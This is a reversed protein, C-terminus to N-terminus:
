RTQLKEHSPWRFGGTGNMKGAAGREKEDDRSNRLHQHVIRHANLHPPNCVHGDWARDHWTLRRSLHTTTM